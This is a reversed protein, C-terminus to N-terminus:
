RSRRQRRAVVGWALLPSIVLGALAGLTLNRPINPSVPWRPVEPAVRLIVQSGFEDQCIRAAQARGAEALEQETLPPNPPEVVVPTDPSEPPTLKRATDELKQRADALAQEQKAIAKRLATLRLERDRVQMERRYDDFSEIVAWAIDRSLKANHYRVRLTVRTLSPEDTRETTVAEQLRELATEPALGEAKGFALKGVVHLLVNRRTLLDSEETWFGTAVVRPRPSFELVARSEYIRPTWCTGGGAVILGGGACLVAM